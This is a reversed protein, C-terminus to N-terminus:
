PVFDVAFLEAPLRRVGIVGLPYDGILEILGTMDKDRTFCVFGDSGQADVYRSVLFQAGGLLKIPHLGRFIMRICGGDAGLEDYFLGLAAPGRRHLQDCSSNAIAQMTGSLAVYITDRRQQGIVARDSKCDGTGLENMPFIPERYRHLEVQCFMALSQATFSSHAVVHPQVEFRLGELQYGPDM